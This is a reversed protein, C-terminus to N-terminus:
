IERKAQKDLDPRSQGMIKTRSSTGYELTNPMKHKGIANELRDGKTQYERYIPSNAMLMIPNCGRIVAPELHCNRSYAIPSIM